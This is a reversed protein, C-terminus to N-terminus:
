AQAKRVQGVVGVPEHRTYSFFKGDIPVTKGQLMSTCRLRVLSSAAFRM